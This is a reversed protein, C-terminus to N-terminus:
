AHYGTVAWLLVLPSATLLLKHKDCVTFTGTHRVKASQVTSTHNMNTSSSNICAAWENCTFDNAFPWHNMTVLAFCIWLRLKQLTRSKIIIARSAWFLAAVVQTAIFVRRKRTCPLVPPSKTVFGCLHSVSVILCCCCLCLSSFPRPLVTSPSDTRPVRRNTTQSTPRWVGLSSDNRHPAPKECLASGQTTSPCRLCPSATHM